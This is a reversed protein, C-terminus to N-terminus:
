KGWWLIIAGGRRKGREREREKGWKKRMFYKIDKGGL